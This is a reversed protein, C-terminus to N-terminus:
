CIVMPNIWAIPLLNPKLDLKISYDSFDIQYQHTCIFSRLLKVFKKQKLTTHSCFLEM